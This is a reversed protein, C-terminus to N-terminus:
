LHSPNPSTQTGISSDQALLFVGPPREFTAYTINVKAIVLSRYMFAVASGSAM